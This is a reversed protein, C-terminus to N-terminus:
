KTLLDNAKRRFYAIPSNYYRQTRAKTEVYIRRERVGPGEPNRVPYWDKYRPNALTKKVFKEIQIERREKLSQISFEECISKYSKESGFALRVVQKQMRELDKSHQKTLQSHYVATCFEIVPRIFVNFLKLLQDGKFGARRLHILSWFRSRFKRKISEVHASVNADSGFVFGLLKLESDSTIRQEGINIHCKNISGNPPSIMLLQTKKCNVKMGIETAKKTIERAVLESYRAKCETVATNTTIHKKAESIDVAEVVTTDDVYKFIDVLLKVMDVSENRATRLSDESCVSEEETSSDFIRGSRGSMFRANPGLCSDEFNSAGAESAAEVSLNDSSELGLTQETPIPDEVGQGGGKSTDLDM